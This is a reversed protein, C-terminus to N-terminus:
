RSAARVGGSAVARQAEERAEMAILDRNAECYRVAERVADVPVDWEAAAEADSQLNVLKDSWITAASLRSGKLFLQQKWAHPRHVLYLWADHDVRELEPIVLRETGGSRDRLVIDRGGRTERSLVVAIRVARLLTDKATSAGLADKLWSIEAEQEPTVDFNQRKTHAAPLPVGHTSLSYVVCM